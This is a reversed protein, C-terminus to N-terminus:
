NYFAFLYSLMSSDRLRVNGMGLELNWGRERERERQTEREGRRLALQQELWRRGRRVGGVVFVLVV